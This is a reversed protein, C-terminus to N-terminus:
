IVPYSAIAGGFSGTNVQTSASTLNVKCPKRKYAQPSISLMKDSLASKLPANKWM